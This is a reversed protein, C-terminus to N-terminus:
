QAQFMLVHTFTSLRFKRSKRKGAKLNPVRFVFSSPQPAPVLHSHRATTYLLLCLSRSRAADCIHARCLPVPPPQTYQKTASDCNRANRVPICLLMSTVLLLILIGCLLHHGIARRSTFPHPDLVWGRPRRHLAAGLGRCEEFLHKRWGGEEERELDTGQM